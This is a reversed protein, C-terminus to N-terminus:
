SNFGLGRSSCGMGKVVLDDRRGRIEVNIHSQVHSVITELGRMFDGNIYYFSPLGLDEPVPKSAPPGPKRPNKLKTLGLFGSSLIM